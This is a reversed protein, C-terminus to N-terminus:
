NKMKKKRFMKYTIAIGAGIMFAGLVFMILVEPAAHTVYGDYATYICFGGMGFFIVCLVLAAIIRFPMPVTKESGLAISGELILEFLFEVIFEM